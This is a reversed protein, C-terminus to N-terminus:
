EVKINAARVIGGLEKAQARIFEGFQEPTQPEILEAGDRVMRQRVEPDALVKNIEANLLDVIPKPTGSRMLVGFLATLELGPLDSLGLEAVSPVDPAVPLRGKSAVALARINGNQLQPILALFDHFMVQTEGSALSVIAPASGNYVVHLLDTGTRLKFLEGGIRPQSSAGTSAYNLKGPNRKAHDILQRLSNIPLKGHVFVGYPLRTILAVPVFDKQSDYPLSPFISPNVAFTQTCMFLTYGDAPARAVAATGITQGAGPRNEVIVPQGLAVSLKQGILRAMIDTPGGAPVAVVIRLPRSPYTEQARVLNPVLLQASVGAGTALLTRRSARM